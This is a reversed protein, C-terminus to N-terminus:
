IEDWNIESCNNVYSKFSNIMGIENAIKKILIYYEREERKIKELYNDNYNKLQKRQKDFKSSDLLLSWYIKQKESKTIHNKKLYNKIPLFLNEPFEGWNFWGIESCKNPEMIKAIDTSKVSCSVFITIYHLDEDIFMDNTFNDIQLDTIDLGTEEKVERIACEEITEFKDLKGGPFSWTDEGHAGKRKMLLFKDCKQVMVGIGVHPRDCKM